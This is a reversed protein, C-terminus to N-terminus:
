QYRGLSELTRMLVKFTHFSITNARKVMHPVSFCFKLLCVQTFVCEYGVSNFSVYSHAYFCTFALMKEHVAALLPVHWTNLTLVFSSEWMAPCLNWKTEQESNSNCIFIVFSFIIRLICEISGTLILKISWTKKCISWFLFNSLLFFFSSKM